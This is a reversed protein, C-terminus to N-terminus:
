YRLGPRWAQCHLRTEAKSSRVAEMATQLGGIRLGSKNGMNRADKDLICCHPIHLQNDPNYTQHDASALRALLFKTVAGYARSSIILLSVRMGVCFVYRLGRLMSSVSIGM